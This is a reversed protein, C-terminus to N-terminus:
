GIAAAAARRRALEGAELARLVEGEIRAELESQPLVVAGGADALVAANAEQHSSAHPYPVLISPTGTAALESVTLAGARAIVLDTASYFFRMEPEFPVVSWNAVDAALESWRAHQRSGALHLVQYAPSAAVLRAAANNLADAGQSGGLIGVVPREGDLGYRLRAADAAPPDALLAARLPNGVLETRPLATAAAPFAVFVKQALRAALRNARGPVANQEHLFLPIGARRAALAAPGTVYGGMALMAKVERGAIERHIRRSARVVGALVRFNELSVTRVLGRVDVSVLDYGAEPVATAEIRDGGFFVIDAPATGYQELAEAVALAPFVHGGTGAAAIGITM